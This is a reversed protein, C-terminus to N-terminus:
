LYQEELFQGSFGNGVKEAVGFSGEEQHAVALSFVRWTLRKVIKLLLKFILCVYKHTNASYM